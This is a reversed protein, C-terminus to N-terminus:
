KRNVHNLKNACTKSCTTREKASAKYKTGKFETGCITCKGVYEIRRNKGRWREGCKDSCFETFSRKSYFEKGCEKCNFKIPELGEFVKKGHESHWKKGEPSSHWDKSKEQGAKVFRKFSESNKDLHLARHEAITLCELNSIDNNLPNFDKHHIQYGKPVERKNHYEWIAVHLSKAKKRGENNKSQSLYYKKSGMLRYVTGNFIIEKEM